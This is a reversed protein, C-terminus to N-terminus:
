VTTQQNLADNLGHASGRQGASLSGGDFQENLSNDNSASDLISAEKASSGESAMANISSAIQGGFTAAIREGASERMSDVKDKMTQVAGKALSAGMQGAFQSASGMASALNQSLSSSSTGSSSGSSLSQQASQFAAKLASAGGAINSAAGMFANGAAVGATAAAGAAGLAAGLGMGGSSMGGSGGGIIGSIKPPIKNILGLLIISVVLMIFLEKISIDNTMVTYFQDIFSKGIGVLIIMMFLEMGITLVSKYYNIAIDQTWQGGGFGLLFIGTYTTIWATVLMLLMNIGVLTLVILIITAIFLGVISAGPSWISSMDVVKFAIDFGIDVIGSPSISNSLGTADAAIKRCSDIVATAIASGNILLWLFFGTMVLFRVTEAFFEQIDAKRLAMMSYTWTMSLLVLGWFLWQGYGVLKDSWFSATDAFRQILIDFLNASDMKSTAAQSQIPTFFLTLAIFKKKYQKKM